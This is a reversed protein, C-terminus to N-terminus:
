ERTMNANAVLRVLRVGHRPLSVALPADTSGVDSQRWVDRVVLDPDVKLASWPISLEIPLEGRNFIGLATSGDELKKIWYEVNGESHVRGAQRGLSDQNIALVEDNTLLALTFADLNRVDCGLLLPASLLAWLSVHSYQEDPTLKNDRRGWGWGVDGVVLMDPDNWGGPGAFEELGAQSFGIGSMNSWSDRIDYTTRWLHGGAERGWKWVDAHGYQCISYLINRPTKSLIEGLFDYPARHEEVSGYDKMLVRYSCQDYKIYDFGWQAWQRVNAEEVGLSGYNAGCTMAGPSSYIGAKLGLDHIFDVLGKMDPFRSNAALAGNENLAPGQMDPYFPRSTSFPSRKTNRGLAKLVRPLDTGPEPANTWYEDINVYTWGHNVLGSDVLARATERIVEDSITHAFYNWSNWGMPPTLALDSGIRISVTREGTGLENSVKILVKYEGVTTPRGFVQGSKPDFELGPPLGSVETRLPRRGSIPITYSFENGPRAGVLGPGNVRPTDPVPPTLIYKEEVPRESLYPALGEYKIMPNIWNVNPATTRGVKWEARPQVVVVLETVGYLDAQVSTLGDNAPKLKTEDLLRGNGYLEVFVTGQGFMSDDPAFEASFRRARGDLIIYASAQGSTGFGGSLIRGGSRMVNGYGNRDAQVSRVPSHEIKALDLDVLQITEAKGLISFATFLLM